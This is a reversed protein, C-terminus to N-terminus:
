KTRRTYKKNRRVNEELEKKRQQSPGGRRHHHHHRVLLLMVHTKKVKNNNDTVLAVCACLCANTCVLFQERERNHLTNMDRDSPDVRIGVYNVITIISEGVVGEHPLADCKNNSVLAM